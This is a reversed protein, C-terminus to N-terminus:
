FPVATMSGVKIQQGHAVSHLRHGSLKLADATGQSCYVDTGAQMLGKVGCAHDMHEHSVFCAETQHLIFGARERFRKAQIGAELLLRTHGDDVFYANGRSSSALPTFELM